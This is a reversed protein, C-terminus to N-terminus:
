NAKLNQKHFVVAEKLNGNNIKYLTAQRSALGKHNALTVSVGKNVEEFDFETCDFLTVISANKGNEFEVKTVIAHSPKINSFSTSASQKIGLKELQNSLSLQNILGVQNQQNTKM